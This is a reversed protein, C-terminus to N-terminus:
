FWLIGDMHQKENETCKHFNGQKFLATDYERDFTSFRVNLRIAFSKDLSPPRPIVLGSPARSKHLFVPTNSIYRVAVAGESIGTEFPLTRDETIFADQLIAM